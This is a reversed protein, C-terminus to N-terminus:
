GRGVCARTAGRVSARLSAPLGHGGLASLETAATDPAIRRLICDAQTPTVKGSSALGRRFQREFRHLLRGQLRLGDLADVKWDGGVRLM